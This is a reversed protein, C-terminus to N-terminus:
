VGGTRVLAELPMFATTPAESFSEPPISLVNPNLSVPEMEIVSSWLLESTRRSKAPAHWESVEAHLADRLAHYFEDTYTATFITCLDDSDTWNRKRGLQAQVRNFFGTGPLPYSLSVGIDDPRTERVLRVTDCIEAWGEGPYGFQLFYCARISARALRERAAYIAALRLGKGMADLIKQSGSEVGMWIEVCGARKLASVTTESMLDARAQIKFPVIDSHSEVANAFAEVWHRNLAFVDDGFWIHEVGYVDRLERIEAAVDEPARIHFKDGSIPKACWNCRYPCGRSSVVNTSFYGHKETWAKRYPEMDILERAIRPLNVWSPNKPSHAAHLIKKGPATYHVLGAIAGPDQSRLLAACLDTLTQEAEGNLVYDAGSDLYEVPHDTADSGHAIVTIGKSHAMMSLQNALERMHSLCMKTVFNFDDEYIVVIKPLHKELADAFGTIPSTFTSDFIAVSIGAARLATAAYLTGLPPYPQMKKMQKTDNPLHYSHTLLVDTMSNNQM